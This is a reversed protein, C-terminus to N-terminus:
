FIIGNGSKEWRLNLIEAYRKLVEDPASLKVFNLGTEIHRERNLILGEQELNSEFTDRKHKLIQLCSSPNTSDCTEKAISEESKSDWVM